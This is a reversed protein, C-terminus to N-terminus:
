SSGGAFAVAAPTWTWTWTWSLPCVPAENSAERSPVLQWFGLIVADGLRWGSPPVQSGSSNCHLRHICGFFHWTVFTCQCFHPVYEVILMM